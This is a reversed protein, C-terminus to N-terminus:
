FELNHCTMELMAIQSQRRRSIKWAFGGVESPKEVQGDLHGQEFRGAQPIKLDSPVSFSMYCDLLPVDFSEHRTSPQSATQRSM